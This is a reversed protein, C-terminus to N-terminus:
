ACKRIPDEQGFIQMMAGMRFKMANFVATRPNNPYIFMWYFKRVRADALVINRIPVYPSGDASWTCALFGSAESLEKIRILTPSGESLQPLILLDWLKGLGAIHGWLARYVDPRQDAVIFDCRPVHTNWIFTLKRLKFGYFREIDELMPAIGVVTNGERVVVIHMKRNGGFSEWWTRIWEHSVFSHDLAAESVLRDWAQQLNLFSNFDSVTDVRVRRASYQILGMSPIVPLM